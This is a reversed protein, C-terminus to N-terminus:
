RAPIPEPPLGSGACGYEELDILLSCLFCRHLGSRAICLGNSLCGVFAEGGRAQEREDHDPYGGAQCAAERDGATESAPLSFHMWGDRQTHYVSATLLVGLARGRRFPRSLSFYYCLAPPSHGEGFVRAWLAMRDANRVNPDIRRHGDSAAVPAIESLVVTNGFLGNTAYCPGGPLATPIDVHELKEFM